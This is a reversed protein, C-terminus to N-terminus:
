KNKPFCFIAPNDPIFLLLRKFLIAQLFLKIRQYSYDLNVRCMVRVSQLKFVCVFLLSCRPVHM